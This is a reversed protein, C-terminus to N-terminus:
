GLPYGLLLTMFGPGGPARGHGSARGIREVRLPPAAATSAFSALIGAGTPTTWEFRGEARRVQFNRLLRLTAPGPRDIWRGRHGLHRAGVPIPTVHTARVGFHRLGACFGAAAALTDAGALQHLRVRAPPVSHAAGEAAALRSFVRAVRERQAAPLASRRIRRILEGAGRPLIAGAAARVRVRCARVGDIRVREVRLQAKLGLWRLWRRVEEPPLGLDLMGALLMDGSAGASCDILLIM